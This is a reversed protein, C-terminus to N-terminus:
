ESQPVIGLRRAAAVADARSAADLKALIASLHNEVTRPSLFLRSAIEPTHYGAAVLALVETERRTLGAPSARTAPRPGRPARRVGIQRLRGRALAAAPPCGLQEFTALADRLATEDTSALRARAGEYRYGIADWATTATAWDGRMLLGYPGTLNRPPDPLDGCTWRWTALEPLSWHLGRELALDYAARAEVVAQEPDGALWAAEARAARTPGLFAISASGQAIELAEDLLPTADDEGLRARMRGAALLAYFRTGPPVADAALVADAQRRAADWNGLAVHVNALLARMHRLPLDLDRDACFAIGREFSAVAERPRGGESYGYGLSIHTRATLGDIEAATSLQMSLALRDRGAAVDGRALMVEGITTLADIRTPVAGVREATAIAKEGLLIAAADRRVTGRLRALTAYALALEPGPEIREMLAVATEAEREADAVRAQAWLLDALHCRNEGEKRADGRQSWISLAAARAAMAQDIQATFYSEHALAELLRARETAPLDGAFRLTRRYQEAAERHSRFQAARRAAAPAHRLVADRDGAEEAHHALRAPHLPGSLTAELRQLVAAHLAKRRAPSVASSVAERALEHRFAFVSGHDDLIGSELCAGLEDATAGTVRDLLDPDVTAGIVAAAELVAWAAVPLRAARALVADRVTEPVGGGAAIVATVFFPNGGTRAHLEAADLGTGAALAAVGHPTLPQISLRQVAPAAALDGLVRRLPHRPGTEDDRYTIVVVSNTREVRRSLFRVLDLTAEDAWHADEIALVVPRSGSTLRALVARFLTDRPADAALLRRLSPEADAIDFLPGLPRPTSLADCQGLLVAADAGLEAVFRRLLATKGAGAEGALLVLTGSGSAARRWAQGLDDLITERELLDM